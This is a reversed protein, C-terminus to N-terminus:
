KPSWFGGTLRAFIAIPFPAIGFKSTNARRGITRAEGGREKQLYFQTDDERLKGHDFCVWLHYPIIGLNVFVELFLLYMEGNKFRSMYVPVGDNLLRRQPYSM